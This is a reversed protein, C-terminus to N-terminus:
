KNEKTLLPSDVLSEWEKKQSETLQGDPSEEFLIQLAVGPAVWNGRFLIKTMM